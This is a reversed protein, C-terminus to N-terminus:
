SSISVGTSMVTMTVNITTPRSSYRIQNIGHVARDFLDDADDDNDSHSHPQELGETQESRESDMSM